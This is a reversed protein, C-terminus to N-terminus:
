LMMLQTAELLAPLSAILVPPLMINLANRKEVKSFLLTILSQHTSLSSSFIGELPIDKSWIV